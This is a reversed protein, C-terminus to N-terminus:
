GSKDGRNRRTLLGGPIRSIKGELELETLAPTFAQPTLELDRMLQDSATPSPGLGALIMQHLAATEKLSRKEPPPTPVGALAQTLASLQTLKETVTEKRGSAAPKSVEPAPPAATSVGGTAASPMPPLAAIVDEANRVLVAGDRILANCGFARADFPHGPVAMVERGLDLADRATILSGSRGAAEVVIVAQALGAIIRNRKPFDRAQPTRQMPQESLILGKRAINQALDTNQSPYIVDCGGALVAITGTELSALHAATDVGRALGSVVTFGAAGLDRALSRAMRTGLSSANRAGVVAIMPRTLHQLDGIAWLLPPASSLQSLAPPYLPADFCLLRAKAAKAANVEATVASAPCIEYGSMGAARAMKPLADLANQASGHEALLRHFTVPGVRRSRLLRLKSFWSDETTPPLPPHTSSHAEETM